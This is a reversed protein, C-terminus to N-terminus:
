PRRKNQTIFYVVGGVLLAWWGARSGSGVSLLAFGWAMFTYLARKRYGFSRFASDLAVFTVLNFFAAQHNENIFTSLVRRSQWGVSAEYAGLMPGSKLGTQVLTLAAVIAGLIVVGTQLADGEKESDRVREVVLLFICLLTLYRLVAFSTKMPHLSLSFYADPSGLADAVEGTLRGTEPSLLEVVTPPLPVLQVLALVAMAVFLKVVTGARMRRKRYTQSLSLSVFGLMSLAAVMLQAWQPVGGVLLPSLILVSVLIGGTLHQTQFPRNTDKDRSLGQRM